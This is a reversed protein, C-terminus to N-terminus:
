EQGMCGHITVGALFYVLSAVGLYFLVSTLLMKSSSASILGILVKYSTATAEETTTIISPIPHWLGGREEM